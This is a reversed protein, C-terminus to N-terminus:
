LKPLRKDHKILKHYDLITDNTLLTRYQIWGRFNRCWGFLDKNGSISFTITDSNLDLCEEGITGRLSCLYDKKTMCKAVHESPSAHIPQNIFLKTFLGYDKIYDHQSGNFNNYSVRACRAIAVAIKLDAVTIGLEAADKALLDKEFTDGFPLHWEGPKLLIPTSLNMAKLAEGALKAIHIEADEHDRLGFFNDWETATVLVKHWMYPELMRNTLQKTVGKRDLDEAVVCSVASGAVWMGEIIQADEDLFYETGQMGSHTKQFAIPIFPDNFVIGHMTKFPIARSSASNKSLMRHTNLEALVFRPMTLIMTTIRHGQENISDAVIEASIKRKLKEFKM